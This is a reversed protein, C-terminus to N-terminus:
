QFMGTFWAFGGGCAAVGAMLMAVAGGVLSVLVRPNTLAGSRWRYMMRSIDRFWRNRMMLRAKQQRILENFVRGGLGGGAAGAAAGGAAGAGPASSAQEDRRIKFRVGQPNGLVIVDGPRATTAGGIPQINGGRKLFLGYGKQVPAVLYNGEGQDIVQVHVPAIGQQQNLVIQNQQPDTGIQIAGGGFPGFQTGGMEPPLDLYTSPM